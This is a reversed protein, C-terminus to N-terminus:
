EFRGKSIGRFHVHAEKFTNLLNQLEDRAVEAEDFATQEGTVLENVDVMAQLLSDAPKKDAKRVEELLIAAKVAKLGAKRMRADLDAVKLEGSITMMAGLFRGALKEAEDLTVGEEYSKKVLELLDQYM